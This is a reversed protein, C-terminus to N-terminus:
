GRVMKAGCQPCSISYCPAGVQHPAVTGCNPCVCDGGPGAGARTGGM